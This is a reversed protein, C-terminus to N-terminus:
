TASGVLIATLVIVVVFAASEIMLSTRLHRVLAPDAPRQELAPRLSFHNYAGMGAAVAVVVIKALLVRGWDTSWLDTPGDIVMWAMVLGAV